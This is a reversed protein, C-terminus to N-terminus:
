WCVDARLGLCGEAELAVLIGVAAACLGPHCSSLAERRMAWHVVRGHVGVYLGFLMIPQVNELALQATSQIHAINAPKACDRQFWLAYQWISNPTITLCFVPVQFM